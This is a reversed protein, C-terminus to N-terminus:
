KISNVRIGKAGLEQASTKTIMDLAAKSSSYLVLHKFLLDSIPQYNLNHCVPRIAAISSINIINGKTSELHKAALQILHVVSRVNLGYVQDFGNMLNEDYLSDHPSGGGANNVLFDLRGYTAITEDILRVPLSQDLLDGVIQLPKQGSEKEIQKAVKELTISDRGTITVRAGYKAFELAIQEGIGSNSGTILAVKGSFDYKRGDSVHHSM